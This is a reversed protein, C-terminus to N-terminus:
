KIGTTAISISSGVEDCHETLTYKTECPFQNRFFVHLIQTNCNILQRCETKNTLLAILYCSLIIIDPLDCLREQNVYICICAAQLQMKGLECMLICTCACVCIGSFSLKKMGQMQVQIQTARKFWNKNSIPKLNSSYTHQQENYIQPWVIVCQKISYMWQSQSTFGVKYM